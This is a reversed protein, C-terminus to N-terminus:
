AFAPGAAASAADAIARRADIAGRDLRAAETGPAPAGTRATAASMGPQLDAFQGSAGGRVRNGTGTPVPANGDGTLSGRVINHSVDIGIVDGTNGNITVDGGWYSDGDCSGFQGAGGIQLGYGNRAFTADGDVESACVLSGLENGQVLLTAHLTSDTLDTLVGSRTDVAGVITSSQVFVESGRATLSGNVLAGAAYLTSDFPSSGGARVDIGGNVDTAQLIISYPDRGTVSGGVSSDVVEAFGDAAVTLNGGITSADVLALNAGKRVTVSGQIATNALECSAGAPVVLDGPISAGAAEGDCRTVIAAAAQDLPIVVGMLCLTAASPILTRRVNM